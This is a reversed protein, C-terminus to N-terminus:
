RIHFATTVQHPVAGVVIPHLTEAEDDRWEFLETGPDHDHVILDRDVALFFEAHIKDEFGAFLMRQRRPVTSKRKVLVEVIAVTADWHATSLPNQPALLARDSYAYIEPLQFFQDVEARGIQDKDPGWRNVSLLGMDHESYLKGARFLERCKYGYGNKCIAMQILATEFEFPRDRIRDILEKLDRLYDTYSTVPM